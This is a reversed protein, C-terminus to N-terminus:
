VLKEPEASAKKYSGEMGHRIEGNIAAVWTDEGAIM